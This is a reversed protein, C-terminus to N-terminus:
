EEMDTSAKGYKWWAKRKLLEKKFEKSVALLSRLGTKKSVPVSEFILQAAELAVDENMGLGPSRPVDKPKIFFEILNYIPVRVISYIDFHLKTSFASSTTNCKARCRYQTAGCGTCTKTRRDRWDRKAYYGFFQVHSCIILATTKNTAATNHCM